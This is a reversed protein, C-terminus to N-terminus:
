PYSAPLKDCSAPNAGSSTDLDSTNGDPLRDEPDASPDSNNLLKTLLTKYRPNAVTATLDEKSLTDMTVYDDENIESGSDSM